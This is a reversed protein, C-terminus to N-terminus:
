ILPAVNQFLRQKPGRQLSDATAFRFRNKLILITQIFKHCHKGSNCIMPKEKMHDSTKHTSLIKWYELDLNCTERKHILQQIREEVQLM